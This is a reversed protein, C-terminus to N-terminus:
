RDEECGQLTSVIVTGTKCILFSLSLTTLYYVWMRMATYHHLGEERWALFRKCESM